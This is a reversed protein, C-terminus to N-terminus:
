LISRRLAAPVQEDGVRREGADAVRQQMGVHLVALLGPVTPRAVPLDDLQGPLPRELRIGGLALLDRVLQLLRVHLVNAVDREALVAADDGVALLQGAQDARWGQKVPVDLLALRGSLGPLPRAQGRVPIAMM